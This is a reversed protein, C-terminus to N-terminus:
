TLVAKVAAVIDSPHMTTKDIVRSIGYSALKQKDFQEALNTCLIVPIRGTDDYTQLEHLLSFVTSGALLVDVILVDPQVQDILEIAAPAHHAVSVEYGEKQLVSAELEALWVDDEVLVVKTM